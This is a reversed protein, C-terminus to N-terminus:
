HEGPHNNDRFSMMPAVLEAAMKDALVKYLPAVQQQVDALRWDSFPEEPDLLSKLHGSLYHIRNNISAKTENCLDDRAMVTFGHISSALYKLLRERPAAELENALDVM